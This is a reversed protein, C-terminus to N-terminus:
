PICEPCCPASLCGLWDADHGPVFWLAVYYGNPDIDIM